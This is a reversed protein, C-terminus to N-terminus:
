TKFNRFTQDDSGANGSIFRVYLSDAIRSNRFDCFALYQDDNQISLIAVMTGDTDMGVSLSDCYRDACTAYIGKVVAHYNGFRKFGASKLNGIERTRQLTM